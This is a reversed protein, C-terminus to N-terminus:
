FHLSKNLDEAILNNVFARTKEYQEDNLNFSRKYIGMAAREAKLRAVMVRKPTPAKAGKDKSQLSM